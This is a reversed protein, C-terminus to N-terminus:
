GLRTTDWRKASCRPISRRLCAGEVRRRGGAAGNFLGPIWAPRGALRLGKVGVALAYAPVVTGWINFRAILVQARRREAAGRVPALGGGRALKGLGLNEVTTL